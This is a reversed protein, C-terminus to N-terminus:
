DILILGFWIDQLCMLSCIKRLCKALSNQCLSSRQEHSWHRRQAASERGPLFGFAPGLDLMAKRNFFVQWALDLLTLPAVCPYRQTFDNLLRWLIMKTPSFCKFTILNATTYFDLLNSNQTYCWGLYVIRAVCLFSQLTCERKAECHSFRWKEEM